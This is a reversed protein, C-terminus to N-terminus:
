CLGGTSGLTQHLFFIERFSNILPLNALAFVTFWAPGNEWYGRISRFLIKSSGTYHLFLSFFLIFM